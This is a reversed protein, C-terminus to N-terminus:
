KAEQAKAERKAKKAAEEEAKRAREAEKEAIQAQTFEWAEIAGGEGFVDYDENKAVLKVTVFREKGEVPVVLAFEDAGVQVGDFAAVLTAFTNHTRVTDKMLKIAEAKKM